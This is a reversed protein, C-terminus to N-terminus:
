SRVILAHNKSDRPQHEDLDSAFCILHLPFNDDTIDWVEVERDLEENSLSTLEKLLRFYTM